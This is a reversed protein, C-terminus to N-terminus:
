SSKHTKVLSSKNNQAKLYLCLCFGLSEFLNWAMFYKRLHM